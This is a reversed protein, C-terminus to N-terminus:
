PEAPSPFDTIMIGGNPESHVIEAPAPNHRAERNASVHACHSRVDEGLRERTNEDLTM